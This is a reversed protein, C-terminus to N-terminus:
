KYTEQIIKLYDYFDGFQVLNLWIHKRISKYRFFIIAAGQPESSNRPCKLPAASSTKQLTWSFYNLKMESPHTRWPRWPFIGITRGLTHLPRMNCYLIAKRRLISRGNVWLLRVWAGWPPCNNQLGVLCTWPAKLGRHLNRLIYKLDWPLLDLKGQNQFTVPGWARFTILVRVRLTSHRARMNYYFIYM